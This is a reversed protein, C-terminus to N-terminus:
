IGALGVLVIGIITFYLPVTVTISWFFTGHNCTVITVALNFPEVLFTKFQFANGLTFSIAM